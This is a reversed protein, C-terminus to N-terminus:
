KLPTALIKKVSDPLGNDRGALLNAVEWQETDSLVKKYSPM